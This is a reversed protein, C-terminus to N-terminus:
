IDYEAFLYEEGEIKATFVVKDEKEYVKPDYDTMITASDTIVKGGAKKELAYVGDLFDDLIDDKSILYALTAPSMSLGLENIMMKADALAYSQYESDSFRPIISKVLRTFREFESM